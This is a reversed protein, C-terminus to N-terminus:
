IMVSVKKSYQKNLIVQTSLHKREFPHNPNLMRWFLQDVARSGLVEKNFNVSAYLPLEPNTYDFGTFIVDSPIHYGENKLAEIAFLATTDNVCIFADPFGDEKVIDVIIDQIHDFSLLKQNQKYEIQHDELVTRYSVYREKFSQAENINGIFQFTRYGDDILETVLIEMSATNDFFITDCQFKPDYHDVMVVPIHLRQIDLLISTSINGVCFVGKIADPNVMTFISENTPETLTIINIGKQNLVTSIGNFVPGWYLNETNQYRFNPFLILITGSWGETPVEISPTLYKSKDKYYGLQEAVHVIYQRTENSVGSKGSLARSVAYKSMGIETAIQQITIKNRIM